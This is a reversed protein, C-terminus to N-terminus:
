GENIWREYHLPIFEQPLFFTTERDDVKYMSSIFPTTILRGSGVLVKLGLFNTDEDLNIMQDGVYVGLVSITFTMKEGLKFPYYDLFKLEPYSKNLFCFLIFLLLLPFKM